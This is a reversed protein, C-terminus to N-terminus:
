GSAGGAPNRGNRGLLNEVANVTPAAVDLCEFLGLGFHSGYGLALPGAIPQGFMLRLAFGCEVPPQPGRQRSFVFHRFRHWRADGNRFARDPLAVTETSRPAPALQHWDVTAPLDRSSLEAHIQGLLTHKGHTKVHRPPVFPTVSQWISGYGAVLPALRKGYPDPLRVLDTLSGRGAVALRLPELGGKTFTSRVAHITDQAASGLGMPAWILVHDLHGDRDLDLPIIHAHAHRGRLPRRNGDRGTLEPQAGGKRAAIGVLARHLLDAQPLTRTVPPLAHDNRQVNALSLLMAEIRTESRRTSRARPSGVEIADRKRWYFVRRSGPPQSWGHRRLWNTDKQLCDLLDAPYSEAAESRRRLLAKSPKRGHPLPLEALATELQVSRWEAFDGADLAALLPVQEWGRGPSAGNRAEPFCNGTPIDDGPAVLRGAVWSESRGLYSLREVLTGAISREAEDLRVSSWTITMEGDEIRAWTDFVLTKKEIIKKDDLVGTPMYHRSHAGIASPLHYHPLEASLKEILGRAAAPPGSRNWAGSTYGVSILARLVRWPSPPWEILGENVHHGYPTAHYRGAPFRFALSLSM